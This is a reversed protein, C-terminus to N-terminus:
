VQMRQLAYVALVGLGNFLLLAFAYSLWGMEADAKVGCLRYVLSEVRGVFAFRGEMVHAIYRGLPISVALLLVGYVALLWWAHATM